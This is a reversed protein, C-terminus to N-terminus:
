LVFLSVIHVSLVYLILVFISSGNVHTCPLMRKRERGSGSRDRNRIGREVSSVRERERGIERERERKSM